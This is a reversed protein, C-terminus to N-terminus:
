RTWRMTLTRHSTGATVKVRLGHARRVLRQANRRLHVTVKETKGSRTATCADIASDDTEYWVVWPVTHRPGTFAIDPEFGNRTPDVHLAPDAGADHAHAALRGLGVQQWCFAATAALGLTTLAIAGLTAGRNVSSRM